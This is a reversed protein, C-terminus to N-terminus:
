KHFKNCLVALKLGTCDVIEEMILAELFGKLMGTESTLNTILYDIGVQIKSSGL